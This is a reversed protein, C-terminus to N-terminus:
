RRRKGTASISGDSELNTFQGRRRGLALWVPGGLLTVDAADGRQAARETLDDIM